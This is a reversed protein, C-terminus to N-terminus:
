SVSRKMPAPKTARSLSLKDISSGVSHTREKLRPFVDKEFMSKLCFKPDDSTGPNSGTGSTDKFFVEKKEFSESTIGRIGM